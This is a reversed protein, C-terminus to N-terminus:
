QFMSFDPQVDPSKTPRGEGCMVAEFHSRSVLPMGDARSKFTFGHQRLWRAQASAKVRGTIEKLEAITLCITNMILM